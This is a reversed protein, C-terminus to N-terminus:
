DLDFHGLIAQEVAVEGAFDQGLGSRALSNMRAVRACEVVVQQILEALHVSKLPTTWSDSGHSGPYLEVGSSKLIRRMEPSLDTSSVSM